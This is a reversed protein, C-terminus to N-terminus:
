PPGVRVAHQIMPPPGDSASRGQVAIALEGTGLNAM